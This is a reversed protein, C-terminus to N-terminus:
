VIKVRTTKHSSGKLQIVLIYNSQDMYTWLYEGRFQYHWIELIGCVNQLCLAIIAKPLYNEKIIIYNRGYCLRKLVISKNNTLKNKEPAYNDSISCM